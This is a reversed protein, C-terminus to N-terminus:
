VTMNPADNVSSVEDIKKLELGPLSGVSDAKGPDLIRLGSHNSGSRCSDNAGSSPSGENARKLSKKSAHRLSLSSVSSSFQWNSIKRKSLGLSKLVEEYSIGAHSGSYLAVAIQKYLGNVVLDKPTLHLFRDFEVGGAAPDQEHLVQLKIGLSIVARVEAALQDGAEGVWTQDNLYLIFFVHRPLPCGSPCDTKHADAWGRSNRRFLAPREPVSTRVTLRSTVRANPASAGKHATYAQVHRSFFAIEEETPALLRDGGEFDVLRRVVAAAGPNHASSILYHPKELWWRLKDPNSGFFLRPPTPLAQYQPLSHLMEEVILKLSELQYSEVRLWPIPTRQRWMESDESLTGDTIRESSKSPSSAGDTAPSAAVGGAKGEAATAKRSYYLIRRQHSSESAAASASDARPALTVARAGKWSQGRRRSRGGESSGDHPAAVRTFFVAHLYEAPCEAMLSDLPAGGKEANQEHVLILRKSQDVAATVERICNKSFFYGRSLFILVVATQRVYMELAGIDELDDVDLFIRIGPQLTQLRRKIVAVQDQGTSWIHSLFLHYVLGDPLHLEPRKGDLRFIQDKRGHASRCWCYLLTALLGVAPVMLMITMVTSDVQHPVIVLRAFGRSPGHYTALDDSNLQSLAFVVTLEGPALPFDWADDSTFNRKFTVVSIGAAADEYGSVSAQIVNETHNAFLRDEVPAAVAFSWADTVLGVGDVVRGLFMDTDVMGHTSLKEESRKIGFALWGLTRAQLEFLVYGNPYTGHVNWRVLFNRSLEVQHDYRVADIWPSQKAEPSYTVYCLATQFLASSSCANASDFPTAAPTPAGSSLDLAVAGRHIFHHSLEVSSPPAHAWIFHAPEAGGAAFAEVWAADATFHLLTSGDVVELRRSEGSHLAPYLAAEEASLLPASGQPASADQAVLRRIAVGEAAVGVVALSPSPRVMGGRESVGLGLWHVPAGVRLTFSVVGGVWEWELRVAPLGAGEARLEVAHAANAAEAAARRSLNLAHPVFRDTAGGGLRLLRGAAARFADRFLTTNAAFARAHPYFRWDHALSGDSDTRLFSPAGGAEAAPASLRGGGEERWPRTFLEAFYAADLASPTSDFPAHFGDARACRGLSHAGMLAVAEAESFGLSCLYEVAEVGGRGWAAAAPPPPSPPPAAADDSAYFDLHPGGAREIAVLAALRRLSAGGLSPAAAAGIQELLAAAHAVGAHTAWSAHADLPLPASAAAADGHIPLRLLLPLLAPTSLLQEDLRSAALQVQASLEPPASPPPPPAHPPSPPSAPSGGDVAGDDLPSAPRPPLAPPPSIQAPPGLSVVHHMAERVGFYFALWAVPLVSWGIARHLERWARRRLTVKQGPGPAHPRFFGLAAQMLFLAVVAYGVRAHAAAAHTRVMALAVGVGGLAFLLASSQLAMHALFWPQMKRRVTQTRARHARARVAALKTAEQRLRTMLIGIPSCVAFAFGMMLAHGVVLWLSFGARWSVEGGEGFTLQVDYAVEHAQVKDSAAAALLFWTPRDSCAALPAGRGCPAFEVWYTVRTVGDRRHASTVSIRDTPLRRRERVDALNYSYLISYAQRPPQGADFFTVLSPSGAGGSDMSGDVSTGLGVWGSARSTLQLAVGAASPVGVGLLLRCGDVGGSSGVCRATGNPLAHAAWDYEDLPSARPPSPPPALPPAGEAGGRRQLTCRDSVRVALGYAEGVGFWVSVPGAGGSTDIELQAPASPSAALSLFDLRRGSCRASPSTFVAGELLLALTGGETLEVLLKEGATYSGGCARGQFRPAVDHRVALAAMIIEGVELKRDCGLNSPGGLVPSTALLLM